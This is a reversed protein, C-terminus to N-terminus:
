SQFFPHNKKVAVLLKDYLKSYNTIKNKNSFKNVIDEFNTIDNNPKPLFLCTISRKLKCLRALKNKTTVFTYPIRHEECFVPVHCIIDIPFIDIALIVIGQTGKRIAKIVQTLGIIVFKTKLIKKQQQDISENTKIIQTASAKAYCAYDLIKLFYKYYKKKLLPESIKSIFCKSNENKIEEVMKDYNKKPKGDNEEVREEAGSNKDSQDGGGEDKEM